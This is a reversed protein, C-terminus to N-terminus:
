FKMLHHEGLAYPKVFESNVIGYESCHNECNEGYPKVFESNEIGYESNQPNPRCCLDLSQDKKAMLLSSKALFFMKSGQLLAISVPIIRNISWTAATIKSFYVYSRQNQLM